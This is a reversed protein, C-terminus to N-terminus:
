HELIMCGWNAGFGFNFLLLQDGRRLRGADAADKLNIFNDASIVHGKAAINDAFLKERPLGLLGLLIEWSRLSVNHPIIWSLDGPAIGAAALTEAIIHKATPFYSAVIENKKGVSDWYYGKTVHRQAVIRNAAADKEVLLACAGDSIVNYIVERKAEPPFVDASVCLVRRADPNALLLDSACKVASMLGLCGVQAIGVGAANQLGLEYQLRAVPYNFGELFDASTGALSHSRPIAGAYFLADVSAPTVGGHRFLKEAAECALTVAPETGVHVHEFGFAALREARSELRGAAELESLGTRSAPLAYEIASIGVQRRQDSKM